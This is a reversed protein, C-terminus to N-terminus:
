HGLLPRVLAFAAGGALLAGVLVSGLAIRHYGRAGWAPSLACLLVGLVGLAASAM